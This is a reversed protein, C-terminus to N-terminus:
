GKRVRERPFIFRNLLYGCHWWLKKHETIHRWRAALLHQLHRRNRKVEGWESCKDWHYSSKERRMRASLSTLINKPYSIIQVQQNPSPFPFTILVKANQGQRLIKSWYCLGIKTKYYRPISEKKGVIAVFDKKGLLLKIYKVQFNVKFFRKLFFLFYWLVLCILHPKEAGQLNAFLERNTGQERVTLWSNEETHCIKVCNPIHHRTQKCTQKKQSCHLLTSQSSVM